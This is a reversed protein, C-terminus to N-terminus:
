KHASKHQGPVACGAPRLGSSLCLLHGSPFVDGRTARANGIGRTTCSCALLTHGQSSIRQWTPASCMGFWVSWEYRAVASPPGVSVPNDMKASAPFPFKPKRTELSSTSFNAWMGTGCGLVTLSPLQRFFQVDWAPTDFDFVCHAPGFKLVQVFESVYISKSGESIVIFRRMHVWVVKGEIQVHFLSLDVNNMFLM